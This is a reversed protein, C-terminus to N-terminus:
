HAPRRRGRTARGRKFLNQPKPLRDAIERLRSGAQGLLQPVRMVDAIRRELFSWTASCDPSKDNLWYMVTASYVGALLARKTYFNYDTSKDGVAYWIANVTNYLLRTAIGANQPMLLLTCGARVAERHSSNAELRARIAAAVRERTRLHVNEPRAMAAVMQQDAVEHWLILVDKAGGPFANLIREAPIGTEQGAAQLAAESWGDFPVHNLIATLLRQRDEDRDYGSMM